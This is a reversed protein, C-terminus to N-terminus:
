HLLHAFITVSQSGSVERCALFQAFKLLAMLVFWELSGFPRFRCPKNAKASASARQTPVALPCVGGEAETAALLVLERGHLAFGTNAGLLLPFCAGFDL